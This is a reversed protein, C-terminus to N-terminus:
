RIPNTSEIIVKTQVQAEIGDAVAVTQISTAGIFRNCMHEAAVQLDAGTAGDWAVLFVGWVTMLRNGGTLYEENKINGTDQIICELGEVNRVGPLDAGPSVISIAPVAGTTANFTYTGLYSMFTSDAVLTDYIVQASTPFTQAM